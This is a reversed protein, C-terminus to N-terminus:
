VLLFIYGSRYGDTTDPTSEYVKRNRVEIFYKPIAREDLIRTTSYLFSRWGVVKAPYTKYFDLLPGSIGYTTLAPTDGALSWDSEWDSWEPPIECQTLDHNVKWEGCEQSSWRTLGDASLNHGSRVYRRILEAGKEVCWTLLRKLIKCTLGANIKGSDRWRFANLNDACVAAIRSAGRQVGWLLVGLVAVRLESESIIADYNPEHALQNIITTPFRFM